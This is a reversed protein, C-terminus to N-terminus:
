RSIAVFGPSLGAPFPSGPIPTLAGSQNIRFGSIANGGNNATYVFQGFLDVAVSIPGPGTPFPSGPIATLIGNEELAFGSVTSDDANAM